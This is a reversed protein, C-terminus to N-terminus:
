SEWEGDLIESDNTESEEKQYQDAIKDISDYLSKLISPLKNRFNQSKTRAISEYFTGSSKKKEIAVKSNDTNNKSVTNDEQEETHDKNFTDKLLGNRKDFEDGRANERSRTTQQNLHLGNKNKTGKLNTLPGQKSTTDNSNNTSSGCYEVVPKDIDTSNSNIEKNRSKKIKEFKKLLDQELTPQYRKDKCNKNNNQSLRKHLKSYNDVEDKMIKNEERTSENPKNINNMNEESSKFSQESINNDPSPISRNKRQQLVDKLNNILLQGQNKDGFPSLKQPDKLKKIQNNPSTNKELVNTKKIAVAVINYQLPMPPPPPINNSINNLLKLGKLNEIQRNQVMLTYCKINNTKSFKLKALGKNCELYDIATLDYVIEKENRKNHLEDLFDGFSKKNGINETTDKIKYNVCIENGKPTKIKNQEKILFKCVLPRDYILFALLLINLLLIIKNIHYIRLDFAKKLIHKWPILTATLLYTLWPHKYHISCDFFYEAGFLVLLILLINIIYIEM